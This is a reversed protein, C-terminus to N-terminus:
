AEAGGAAATVKGHNDAVSHREAPAKIQMCGAPRNIGKRTEAKVLMLSYSLFAAM